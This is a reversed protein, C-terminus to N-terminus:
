LSFEGAHPAQTPRPPSTGHGHVPPRPPQMEADTGYRKVACRLVRGLTALRDPGKPVLMELTVVGEPLHRRLAAAYAAHHPAAADVPRLHAESVHVHGVLTAHAALTAEPDEANLACTGFDLQLRLHPHDVDRVMAAAEDTTTLFTCGYATPNAELCVTVGAAAAHDGLRRFFNRGQTWAQASTLGKPDRNKPSGFTLAPCGLAGALRCVHALHALMRRQVAAEAFVNLGQTGYLLSQMGAVRLGQAALRARVKQAAPLDAEAVNVFLKSPAVDIYAIGEARLLAVVAEDEAADWAINSVSLRM